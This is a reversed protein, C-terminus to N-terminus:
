RQAKVMTKKLEALMQMMEGPPTLLYDSAMFQQVWPQSLVLTVKQSSETARKTAPSGQYQNMLTQYWPAYQQTSLQHPITYVGDQQQAEPCRMLLSEEPLGGSLVIKHGLVKYARANVKLPAYGTQRSQQNWLYLAQNYFRVFVGERYGLIYQHHGQTTDHIKTAIDM